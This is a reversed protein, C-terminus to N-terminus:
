KLNLIKQNFSCKDKIGNCYFRSHKTSTWSKSLDRAMSQGLSGKKSTNKQALVKAKGMRKSNSFKAVQARGTRLAFSLKSKSQIKSISVKLIIWIRHSKSKTKLLKIPMSSSPEQKNTGNALTKAQTRKFWDTQNAVGSTPWRLILTITAKFKLCPKIKTLFVMTLTAM